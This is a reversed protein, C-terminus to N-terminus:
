VDGDLSQVFLRMYVDEHEIYFNDNFKQFVDLHDEDMRKKEVNYTPLLKLYHDPVPNLIRPLDLPGYRAAWPMIIPGQQPRQPVHGYGYGYGSKFTEELLLPM